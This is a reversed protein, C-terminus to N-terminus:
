FSLILRASILEIHRSDQSLYEKHEKFTKHQIWSSQKWEVLGTVHKNYVYRVGASYDEYLRSYKKSNLSSGYSVYPTITDTLYTALYHMQGITHYSVDIDENEMYMHFAEYGYTLYKNSGIIGIRDIDILFDSKPAFVSSDKDALYLMYRDFDSTPTGETPNVGVPIRAKNLFLSFHDKYILHLDISQISETYDLDVYQSNYGYFSGEARDEGLERAQTLSYKATLIYKGNPLYSYTQQIGLTTSLYGELFENNYVGHNKFIFPNQENATKTNEFVGQFTDITGVETKYVHNGNRGSYAISAKEIYTDDMRNSVRAELDFSGLSYGGNLTIVARLPNENVHFSKEIPKSYTNVATLELNGTLYDNAILIAPTLLTALLLHKM